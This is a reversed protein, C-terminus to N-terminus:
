VNSIMLVYAYTYIKCVYKGGINWIKVYIELIMKAFGTKFGIKKTKKSVSIGIYAIDSPWITAISPHLKIKFHAILPGTNDIM